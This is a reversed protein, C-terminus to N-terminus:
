CLGKSRLLEILIEDSSDGSEIWEIARFIDSVDRFALDTKAILDRYESQLGKLTESFSKLKETAKDGYTKKEMWAILNSLTESDPEGHHWGDALLAESERFCYYAFSGGSM